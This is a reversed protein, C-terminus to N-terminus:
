SVRTIIYKYTENSTKIFYVIYTRTKFLQISVHRYDNFTIYTDNNNDYELVVYNGLLM